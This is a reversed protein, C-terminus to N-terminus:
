HAADHGHVSHRGGNIIPVLFGEGELSLPLSSIVDGPPAGFGGM